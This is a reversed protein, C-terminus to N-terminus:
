ERENGEESPRSSMIKVYKERKLCLCCRDESSNRPVHSAAPWGRCWLFSEIAVFAESVQLSQRLYGGSLNWASRM